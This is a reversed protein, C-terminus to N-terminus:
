TKNTDQFFEGHGWSELLEEPTGAQWPIRRRLFHCLRGRHRALCLIWRLRLKERSTQDNWSCKRFGAHLSMLWAGHLTWSNNVSLVCILPFHIYAPQLWQRNWTKYFYSDSNTGTGEGNGPLWALAPFGARIISLSRFGSNNLIRSPPSITLVSTIIHMARRLVCNLTQVIAIMYLILILIMYLLVKHNDEIQVSPM